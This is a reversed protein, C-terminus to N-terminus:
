VLLGLQNVCVQWRELWINNIKTRLGAGKSYIINKVVPDMVNYLMKLDFDLMIIVSRLKTM